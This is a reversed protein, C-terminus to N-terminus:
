RTRAARARARLEERLKQLEKDRGTFNINRAPINTVQPSDGGPYRLAAIGSEPDAPRQGNLRDILRDVAQTESLGALFIVPM